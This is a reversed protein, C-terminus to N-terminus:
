INFFFQDFIIFFLVLLLIIRIKMRNILKPYNIFYHQTTYITYIIDAINKNKYCKKIYLYNKIIFILM